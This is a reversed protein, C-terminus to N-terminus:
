SLCSPVGMLLRGCREQPECFRLTTAFEDLVFEVPMMGFDRPRVGKRMLPPAGVRGSTLSHAADLRAGARYVANM